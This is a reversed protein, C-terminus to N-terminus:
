INHEVLDACGLDHYALMIRELHLWAKSTNEGNEWQWAPHFLLRIVCLRYDDFLTQWEYNMVGYTQLREHYYHLLPQQYRMRREPFWFYAMMYALDKVALDINWTQWDIMRITDTAPDHPYLFNGIHVDSHVVTFGQSATLRQFLHPMARLVDRYIHRREDSLRDGLM